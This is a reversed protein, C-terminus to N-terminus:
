KSVGIAEGKAVEATEDQSPLGPQQGTSRLRRYRHILGTIRQTKEELDALRKEVWTRDGAILLAIIKDTYSRDIAQQNWPIGGVDGIVPLPGSLAARLQVSEAEFRDLQGSMILISRDIQESTLHETLEYDEGM